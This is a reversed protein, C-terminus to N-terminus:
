KGLYPKRNVRAWEAALIKGEIGRKGFGGPVLVGSFYLIFDKCLVYLLVKYMIRPLRCQCLQEWAKHYKVPDEVKM